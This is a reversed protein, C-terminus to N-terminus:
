SDVLESLHLPGKSFKKIFPDSLLEEAEPREAPDLTLCKSVFSNFEISWKHPETLGQPPNEMIKLVAM